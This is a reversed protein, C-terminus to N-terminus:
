CIVKTVSLLNQESLVEGVGGTRLLCYLSPYIYLSLFLKNNNKDKYISKTIAFNNVLISLIGVLILHFICAREVLYKKYFNTPVFLM